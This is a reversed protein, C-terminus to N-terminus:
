HETFCGYVTNETEQQRRLWNYVEFFPASASNYPTHTMQNNRMHFARITSLITNGIRELEQLIEENTRYEFMGFDRIIYQKWEDPPIGNRIM